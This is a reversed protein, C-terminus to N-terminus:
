STCKLAKHALLADHNTRSTYIIDTGEATRYRGNAFLIEFLGGQPTPEIDEVLRWPDLDAAVAEPHFWYAPAKALHPPRAAWESVTVGYRSKDPLAGCWTTVIAPYRQRWAEVFSSTFSM